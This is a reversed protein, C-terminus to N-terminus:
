LTSFINNVDFKARQYFGFLGSTENTLDENTPVIKCFHYTPTM